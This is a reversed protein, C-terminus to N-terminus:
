TLAWVGEGSAISDGISVVADPKSATAHAAPASVLAPALLAGATVIVALTASISSRV